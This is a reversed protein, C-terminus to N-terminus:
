NIKKDAHQPTFRFFDTSGQLSSVPQQPLYPLLRIAAVVYSPHSRPLLRVPEQGIVAPLTQVLTSPARCDGDSAGERSKVLWFHHDWCCFM